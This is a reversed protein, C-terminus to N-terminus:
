GRFCNYKIANNNTFPSITIKDSIFKINVKKEGKEEEEDNTYDVGLLAKSELDSNTNINVIINKEEPPRM